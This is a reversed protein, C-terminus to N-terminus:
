LLYPRKYTHLFRTSLYWGAHVPVVLITNYSMGTSQIKVNKKRHSKALNQRFWAPIQSFECGLGSHCDVFRHYLICYVGVKSALKIAM